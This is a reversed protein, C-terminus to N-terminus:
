ERKGPRYLAATVTLLLGTINLANRLFHLRTWRARLDQFTPETTTIPDLELLHNNIPVNRALTTALMAVFCGMAGANLLFPAPRQRRTLWLVPLFSAITGTMFFPMAKGYRRTIAQEARVRTPLDLHDFAPHVNLLSGLENGALLGVAIMNVTRAITSVM